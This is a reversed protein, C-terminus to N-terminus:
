LKLTLFSVIDAGSGLTISDAGDNGAVTGGGAGTDITDNGDGGEITDDALQRYRTLSWRDNRTVM